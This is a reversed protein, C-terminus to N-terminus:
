YGQALNIQNELPEGALFKNLNRLFLQVKGEEEVKFGGGTHQTLIVNEMEWLPSTEPLPEQETVDLVAGALKGSQLAQILAQEDTTNGRGVSAYLSGPKMAQFFAASVYKDLGGPLTNIVLDTEPLTELLADFTHIQAQPNRRATMQVACGFGELMQKVAQGISGAGLIIIKKNSLLDLHPRIKGGLWRKQEQCKVLLPLGRYFALIGGVMTEACPKAYFDGMNAVQAELRLHQYQNFGASDLQWFTLHPPIQAFWDVPPNGMIIEAEAFAETLANGSLEKRFVLQVSAPLASRLFSRLSEDLPSYIFLKM